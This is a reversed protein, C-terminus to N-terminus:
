AEVIKINSITNSGIARNDIRITYWKMDATTTFEFTVNLDSTQKNVGTRQNTANFCFVWCQNEATATYSLIYRTSPKLNYMGYISKYQVEHSPYFQSATDTHGGYIISDKTIEITGKNVTFSARNDYYQKFNFLNKIRTKLKKFFFYDFYRTNTNNLIYNKKNM